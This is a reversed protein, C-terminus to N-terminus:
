RRVGKKVIRAWGGRKRIKEGGREGAFMGMVNRHSINGVGGVQRRKRKKENM